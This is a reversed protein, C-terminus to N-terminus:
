IKKMKLSKNEDKIFYHTGKLKLDFSAKIEMVKMPVGFCPFGNLKDTDKIQVSKNQLIDNQIGKQKCMVLESNILIRSVIIEENDDMELLENISVYRKVEIVMNYELM